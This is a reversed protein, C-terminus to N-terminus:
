LPLPDAFIMNVILWSKTQLRYPSIRNWHQSPEAELPILIGQENPGCGKGDYSLQSLIKYGPGYIDHLEKFSPPKTYFLHDVHYADRLKISAYDDKTASTFPINPFKMHVLDVKYEGVRSNTFDLSGWFDGLCTNVKSPSPSKSSSPKNLTSGSAQVKPLDAKLSDEKQSYQERTLKEKMPYQKKPVEEKPVEQSRQEEKKPSHVFTSTTVSSSLTRVYNQFSPM